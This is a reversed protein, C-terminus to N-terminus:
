WHPLIYATTPGSARIAIYRHAIDTIDSSRSRHSHLETQRLSSRRSSWCTISLRYRPVLRHLWTVSHALATRPPLDLRPRQKVQISNRLMNSQVQAPYRHQHKRSSIFSRSNWSNRICENLTDIAPFVSGGSPQSHTGRIRHLILGISPCANRAGQNHLHICVQLSNDAQTLQIIRSFGRPTPRPRPVLILSVTRVEQRRPVDGTASNAM